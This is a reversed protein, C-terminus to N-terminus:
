CICNEKNIVKYDMINNQNDKDLICCSFFLNALKKKARKLKTKTGELTLNLKLSIENVKYQEIISLKLIEEDSKPLSKAMNQICSSLGNENSEEYTSKFEILLESSITRDNQKYFDILTNKTIKYMWARKNDITILKNQNKFIKIAVEQMIDCVFSKDFLRSKVFATLEKEYKNWISNFDATV